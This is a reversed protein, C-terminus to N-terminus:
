VTRGTDATHPAPLHQMSSYRAAAIEERARVEAGTLVYSDSGPFILSRRGTDTWHVFYPPAGDEGHVEEIFGRRVAGGVARGEVILWDGVRARM